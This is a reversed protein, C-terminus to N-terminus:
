SMWSGERGRVQPLIATINFATKTSSLRSPTKNTSPSRLKRIDCCCCDLSIFRLRTFVAHTHGRRLLAYRSLLGIVIVSFSHVISGFIAIEAPKTLTRLKVMRHNATQYTEDARTHEFLGSLLLIYRGTRIQGALEGHPPRLFVLSPWSTPSASPPM